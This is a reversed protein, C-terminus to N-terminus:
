KRAFLMTRRHILEVDYPDFPLQSWAIQVLDKATWHAKMIGEQSHRCVGELLHTIEHVLVNALLRTTLRDGGKGLRDYFVRIHAGDHMDAYALAGPHFLAPTDETINILISQAPTDPQGSRWFITVGADAFIRSAVIQAYARTRTLAPGSTSDKVFVTVSLDGVQAAIGTHVIGALALITLVAAQRM